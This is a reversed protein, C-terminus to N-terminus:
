CNNNVIIKNLITNIYKIPTEKNIDTNLLVIELELLNIHQNLKKIKKYFIDIYQFTNCNKNDKFNKCFILIAELKNNLFINDNEIFIKILKNMFNHLEVNINKLINENNDIIKFILNNYINIFLECQNLIKKSITDINNKRIDNNIEFITKKYVFLSADKSNLQLFSNNDDSIQGIFEIYYICSKQCNYYTIDLNKTYLLLFKYIYSITNIGKKYIFNKYLKNQVFINDECQKIYENILNIYRTVIDIININLSELYNESNQINNKMTYSM